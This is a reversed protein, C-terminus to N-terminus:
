RGREDDIWFLRFNDKHDISADWCFIWGICDGYFEPFKVKFIKGVEFVNANRDIAERLFSKALIEKQKIANGEFKALLMISEKENKKM